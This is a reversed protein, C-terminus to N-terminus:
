LHFLYSSCLMFLLSSVPLQFVYYSSVPLQFVYYSSVPLQIVAYLNFIFCSASVSNLTHKVQIYTDNRIWSLGENIRLLSYTVVNWKYGVFWYVAYNTCFTNFKWVSYNFVCCEVSVHLNFRKSLVLEMNWLLLKFHVQCSFIAFLTYLFIM